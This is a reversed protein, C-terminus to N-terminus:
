AYQVAECPHSYMNKDPEDRYREDGSIQVRKFQYRGNMGKRVMDAKPDVMFGPQGDIMKTLYHAVSERRATFNNSIAPVAPIGEEALLMFCTKEDTDSRSMGSPEGVAQFRYKTYNTALHPIVVDRAFQKIGMGDACLEDLVRFQGRPTLQCIGVAPTLGYDFGLLLPLGEIPKV